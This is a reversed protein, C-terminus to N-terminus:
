RASRTAISWTLGLAERTGCGSNGPMGPPQSGALHPSAKGSRRARQHRGRTRRADAGLVRGSEPSEGRGARAGTWAERDENGLRACSEPGAHTAVGESDSVQVGECQAPKDRCVRVGPRLQQRCRSRLPRQLCDAELYLCWNGPARGVSGSTFTERM